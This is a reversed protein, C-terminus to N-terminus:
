DWDPVDLILGTVGVAGRLLVMGAWFWVNEMADFRAPPVEHGSLMGGFTAIWKFDLRNLLNDRVFVLFSVLISFIFLPGVFNHLNKSIVTLWSFGGYGLWPLVIYKGWLMVIGSLALVVFSVAMTWHSAREVANFREILRGTPAARLKISGKVFYFLMIALFVLGIVWGGYQTLPGNRFARWQRGAGQILQARDVGPISA